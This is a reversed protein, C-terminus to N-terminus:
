YYLSQVMREDHERDKNKQYLPDAQQQRRTANHPLHHLQEEIDENKSKRNHYGLGGGIGGGLLAGILATIDHHEPGGLVAGGLGGLGAGLLGNLAASTGPNYMEVSPHDKLSPFIKPILQSKGKQVKAQEDPKLNERRPLQGMYGQLQQQMSGKFLDEAQKHTLGYQQARKIFGNLYNNNM